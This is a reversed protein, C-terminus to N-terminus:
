ADTKNDVPVKGYIKGEKIATIFAVQIEVVKKGLEDGDKVHQILEQPTYSGYSGIAIKRNGPLVNLRAIVIEMKEKNLKDTM